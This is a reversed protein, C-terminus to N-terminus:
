TTRISCPWGRCWGCTGTTASSCCWCAPRRRASASPWGRTGSSREYTPQGLVGTIVSVQQVFRGKRRGTVALYRDRAGCHFHVVDQFPLPGLMELPSDGYEKRALQGGAGCLTLLNEQLCGRVGELGLCYRRTTEAEGISFELCTIASDRRAVIQLLGPSALCAFGQLRDLEIWKFPIPEELEQCLWVVLEHDSCSIFFPSGSEESLAKIHTVRASHVERYRSLPKTTKSRYVFLSGENSGVILLSSSLTHLATIAEHVQFEGVSTGPSDLSFCRVM